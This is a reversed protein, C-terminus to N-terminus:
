SKSTITCKKNGIPRRVDGVQWMDGVGVKYKLEGSFPLDGFRIWEQKRKPLLQGCLVEDGPRIIQRHKLIEYKM